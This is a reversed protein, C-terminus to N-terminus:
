VFEDRTLDDRWDYTDEFIVTKQSGYPKCVHYYFFALTQLREREKSAWFTNLFNGSVVDKWGGSVLVERAILKLLEGSDKKAEAFLDNPQM